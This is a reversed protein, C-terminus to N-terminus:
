NQIFKHKLPLIKRLELAFLFSSDVLRLLKKVSILVLPIVVMARLVPLLIDVLEMLVVPSSRVVHFLVEPLTIRAALWVRLILSTLIM